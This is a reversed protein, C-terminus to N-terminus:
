KDIKLNKTPSTHKIRPDSNEKRKTDVRREFSADESIKQLKSRPSEISETSSESHNRKRSELKFPDLRSENVKSSTFTSSSLEKRPPSRIGKPLMSQEARWSPAKQYSEENHSQPPLLRQPKMSGLNQLYPDYSRLAINSAINNLSQIDAKLSPSHGDLMIGTYSSQASVNSNKNQFPYFIFSKENVENGFNSGAHKSGIDQKSLIHSINNSFLQNSNASPQVFIVSQNALYTPMVYNQARYANSRHLDGSDFSQRAKYDVYM